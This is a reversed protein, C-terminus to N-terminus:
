ARARNFYFAEWEASIFTAGVHTDNSLTITAVDAQGGVTFTYKGEAYVPQNLILDRSGLVKGSFEAVKGPLVEQVVPPGGYPAVETKFYAADRYSVTMTRLVCRGTTVPSGDGKRVYQKSFTLRFEYANGAYATFGTESGPVTVMNLNAWFYTSPDILSMPRTPHDSGRVIRFSSQEPNFPLTFLTTGNPQAVGAVACRRDLNVQHSANSPKAGSRIDVRELHVGDPRQLLLYLYGKLYTGSLITTGAAFGGNGTGLTWRHWASQAKQTSTLWYYQYVYVASPDGDTLVLLCNLDTAGILRRVGAPVYRPVHATVDSASTAYEGPERVYERVTAWGNQESCFYVDSGMAVLGATTNVPYFTVPKVALSAASLGLEGNSMSFQTESSTLMVGDGFTAAAKLISVKASTPAFDIVDSDLYDLVTNRWFNGFDGACSLIVNEDYLFALRNQYFFVDNITRGVFGPAQNTQTDGVRRPAFAFPRFVFTGDTNRVLAWPMTQSDIYQGTGPLCCEDWVGGNRRVYYGTFSMSGGSSASTTTQVQYCDGDSATTPLKEYTQVAGLFQSTPNPAYSYGLGPGFPTGNTDNGYTRNIWAVYGSWQDTEGPSMAVVKTQNVVFTYDAVTVMRLQSPFDTIGGLYPYGLPATVTHEVGDLGFVRISGASAIAIYSEDERNIEHVYATGGITDMLRAVHETPPRKGTGDALSCWGNQLDEVQEKSRVLPSQQSVGNQLGPLTDTVLTM